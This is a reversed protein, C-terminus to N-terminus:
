DKLNYIINEVILEWTAIPDNAEEDDYQELVQLVQADTIGITLDNAVKYVDEAKIKNTM